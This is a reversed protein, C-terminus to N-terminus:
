RRHAGVFEPHAESAAAFQAEVDAVLADAEDSKGVIQGVTLTLEEWPIGYDVYESPQAVTPAIEPLQEYHQETLGSYLASSSTPVRPRSARSTSRRRGASCWPRSPM